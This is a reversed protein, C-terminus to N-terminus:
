FRFTGFSFDSAFRPARADIVDVDRYPDATRVGTRNAAGADISM